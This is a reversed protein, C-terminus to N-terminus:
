PIDRGLAANYLLFCTDRDMKVKLADSNKTIRELNNTGM